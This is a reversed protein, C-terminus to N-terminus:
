YLCFQLSFEYKIQSLDKLTKIPNKADCVNYYAKSLTTDINESIGKPKEAMEQRKQLMYMALEENESCVVIRKHHNEM